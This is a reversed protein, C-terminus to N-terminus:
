ALGPAGRARAEGSQAKGSTDVQSQAAGRAQGGGTRTGTNKGQAGGSGKDEAKQQIKQVFAGSGTTTAGPILTAAQQTSVSLALVSAAASLMLLTRM